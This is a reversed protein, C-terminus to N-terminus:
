TEAINKNVNKIYFLLWFIFSILGIVMSPYYTITRFSTYFKYENEAIKIMRKLHKIEYDKKILTNFKLDFLEIKQKFDKNKSVEIDKLSNKIKELTRVEDLILKSEDNIIDYKLQLSSKEIEIQKIKDTPYVINFLVLGICLTLLYKFINDGSSLFGSAFEMTM